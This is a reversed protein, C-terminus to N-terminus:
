RTPQLRAMGGLVRWKGGDRVWTHTTEFTEDAPSGDFHQTRHTTYYIVATDGHVAIGVFQMTLREKSTAPVGASNARLAALGLPAPAQPPWALYDPSTNNLYASMDGSARGAYIAQELAWIADKAAQKDATDQALASLPACILVAAAALYGLAKRRVTDFSGEQRANM